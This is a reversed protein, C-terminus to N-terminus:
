YTISKQVSLILKLFVLKIPTEPKSIRKTEKEKSISLQNTSISKEVENNIEITADEKIGENFFPRL